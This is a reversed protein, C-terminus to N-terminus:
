LLWITNLDSHKLGGFNNKGYDYQRGSTEWSKM